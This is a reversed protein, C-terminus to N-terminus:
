SRQLGIIEKSLGMDKTGSTMNSFKVSIEKKLCVKDTNWNELKLYM